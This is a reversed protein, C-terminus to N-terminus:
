FRADYFKRFRNTKLFDAAVLSKELNLYTFNETIFSKSGQEIEEM